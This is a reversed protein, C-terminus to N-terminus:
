RQVETTHLREWPTGAVASRLVAARGPDSTAARFGMAYSGFGERSVHIVGLDVVAPRTITFRSARRADESVALKTTTWGDGFIELLEYAGPELAVVFHGDKVHRARFARFPLRETAVRQIDPQAPRVRQLVVAALDGGIVDPELAITGFVLSRGPEAEPAALGRMPFFPDTLRPVCGAAALAAICLVARVARRM